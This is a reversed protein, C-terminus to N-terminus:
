RCGMARRVDDVIKQPRQFVDDATFRLATWGAAQMRNFRVVDKRFTARGRHHDGEYEIALELEPYALDVRGILRGERDRVHWQAVPRPLGADVIILRLRTEMPSEANPEAEAVVGRFRMVGRWGPHADAVRGLDAVTVLGRHLMADVAIVAQVRDAARGLDFATRLPTTVRLGIFSEADGRSLEGRIVRLMPQARLSTRHPVVVTVPAGRELLDVNRLHAASRGGIAAGPPLLLQAAECWMRHNGPEFASREIYVGHYLRHWQPGRLEAATLLGAGVADRRRFPTLRCQWPVARM